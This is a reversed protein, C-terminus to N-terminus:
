HLEAPFRTELISNWGTGMASAAFAAQPGSFGTHELRLRTGGSVAELTWTVVTNMGRANWTYVLKHPEDLELVECDIVGGGGPAAKDQFQFKHGARPQFDNPMLWRAMAGSDTLARWVREAPFSYTQELEIKDHM